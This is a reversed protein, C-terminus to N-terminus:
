IFIGRLFEEMDGISYDELEKNNEYDYECAIIYNDVLSDVNEYEILDLLSLDETDNTYNIFDYLCFKRWNKM